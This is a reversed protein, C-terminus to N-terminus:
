APLDPHISTSPFDAQLPTTPQRIRRYMLTVRPVSPAIAEFEYGAMTAHVRLFSATYMTFPWPPLCEHPQCTRLLKLESQSSPFCRAVPTLISEDNCRFFNSPSRKGLDIEGSKIRATVRGVKTQVWEVQSRRTMFKSMRSVFTEDYAQEMQSHRVM